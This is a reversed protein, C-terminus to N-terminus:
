ANTRRFRNLWRRGRTPTAGDRGGYYYNYYYKSGGLDRDDARNLVAGLLKEKGIAAAARQTLQYATSGAKIVLLVGDAAAALLNADTMLGVPPTDVIVWDFEDRAEAILRRMRGSTLGAMPDSSPRGAPLVTLRESIRHLAFNEEDVAALGDSLGRQNDIQFITHVSPRRLDADILLVRRRYSESFTLALNVATLTKGEGAVASAIMVVKIGHDV